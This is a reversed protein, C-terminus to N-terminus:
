SNYFDECSGYYENSVLSSSQYIMNQRDENTYTTPDVFYGENTYVTTYRFLIDEVSDWYDKTLLVSKQNSPCSDDFNKLYNYM